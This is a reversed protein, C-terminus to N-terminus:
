QRRKKQNVVINIKNNITNITLSPFISTHLYLPISVVVVSLCTFLHIPSFNESHRRCLKKYIGSRLGSHCCVVLDRMLHPIVFRISQWPLLNGRLSLCSGKLIKVRGVFHLSLFFCFYKHTFCFIGSSYHVFTFRYM